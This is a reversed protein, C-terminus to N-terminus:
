LCEKAEDGAAGSIFLCFRLRPQMPQWEREKANARECKNWALVAVPKVVACARGKVVVRRGCAGAGVHADRSLVCVLVPAPAIVQMYAQEFIGDWARGFGLWTHPLM